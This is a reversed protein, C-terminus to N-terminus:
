GDSAWIPLIAANDRLQARFDDRADLCEYWLNFNQIVKNDEDGFQHALFAEDWSQHADKLELGTRWPKFFTLMTTCYYERDGHDCRPLIGGCFNPVSCKEYPVCRTIHSASFPHTDSFKYWTSHTSEETNNLEPENDQLEDPVLEDLRDESPINQATSQKRNTEWTCRAVWEYLSMNELNPSRYIYDHVPSLGVIRGNDKILTVKFAKWYFLKFRHSTYHDPNGLLYLSIMPSGFEMKARMRNVMQVM